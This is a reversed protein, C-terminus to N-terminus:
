VTNVHVYFVARDLGNSTSQRRCIHLHDILRWQTHKGSQRLVSRKLEAVKQEGIFREHVRRVTEAVEDPDFNVLSANVFSHFM